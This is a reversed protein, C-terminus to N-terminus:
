EEKCYIHRSEYIWPKYVVINNRDSLTFKKRCISCVDETTIPFGYWEKVVKM